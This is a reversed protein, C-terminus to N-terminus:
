LRYIVLGRTIEYIGSLDGRLESEKVSLPWVKFVDHGRDQVAICESGIQSSGTSATRGSLFSPTIGYREALFKVVSDITYSVVSEKSAKGPKKNVLKSKDMSKGERNSRKM